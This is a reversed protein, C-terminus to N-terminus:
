ALVRRDRHRGLGPGSDEVPQDFFWDEFVFSLSEVTLLPILLSTDVYMM